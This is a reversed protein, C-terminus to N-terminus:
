LPFEYIDCSVGRMEDTKVYRMGAKKMVNFSASHQQPAYAVIRPVALTDKAWALLARLSEQALGRGWFEKLLVYGVEVDGNELSGFGARGAFRETAREIIAFDGYGHERFSARANAVHAKIQAPTLIGEPFQARVDPDM